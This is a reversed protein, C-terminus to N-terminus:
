RSNGEVGNLLSMKLKERTKSSIGSLYTLISTNKHQSQFCHINKQISRKDYYYVLFQSVDNLFINM